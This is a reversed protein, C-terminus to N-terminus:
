KAGTTFVQVAYIVGNPGYAIGYGFSRFDRMLIMERHGPSNMWGKQFFDALDYSLGQRARDEMWYINEGILAVAAGGQNRYRNRPKLGEPTLHDFFQRQLMDQAHLQAARDAIPDPVLPALGRMQRDQNVLQLAYARLEAESRRRLHEPVNSVQPVNVPNLNIPSRVQGVVPVSLVVLGFGALALGTLGVASIRRVRRQNLGFRARRGIRGSARRGM